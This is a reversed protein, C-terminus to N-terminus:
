RSRKVKLQKNLETIHPKGNLRVSVWRNALPKVVQGTDGNRVVVFREGSTLTGLSTM